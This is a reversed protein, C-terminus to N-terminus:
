SEKNCNLSVKETSPDYTVAIKMTVLPNRISRETFVPFNTGDTIRASPTFLGDLSIEVAEAGLRNCFQYDDDTLEPWDFQKLRLDKAQGEFDCSFCSYYATRPKSPNGAIKAFHHSIEAKATAVELSSYFVPFTGDSFRTVFRMNENLRTNRFQAKCLDESSDTIGRNQLLERMENLGDGRIGQEELIKSIQPIQSLRFLKLQHKETSLLELM